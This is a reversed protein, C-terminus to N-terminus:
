TSLASRFLRHWAVDLLLAQDFEGLVAGVGVLGHGGEVDLSHKRVFGAVRLDGSVGAALAVAEGRQGSRDDFIEVHEVYDGGIAHDSLDGGVCGTSPSTGDTVNRPVRKTFRRMPPWLTSISCSM